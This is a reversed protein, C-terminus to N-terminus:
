KSYFDIIGYKRLKVRYYDLGSNLARLIARNANYKGVYKYLKSLTVIFRKKRYYDTYPEFYILFERDINM